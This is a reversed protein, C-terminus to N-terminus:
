PRLNTCQILNSSVGTERSAGSVLAYVLEAVLARIILIGKDPCFTSYQMLSLKIM